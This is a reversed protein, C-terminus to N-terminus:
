PETPVRFLMSQVLGKATYPQATMNHALKCLTVLILTQPRYPLRASGRCAIQALRCCLMGLATCLPYQPLLLHLALNCTANCVNIVHQLGNVREQCSQPVQRQKIIPWTLIGFIEEYSASDCCLDLLHLFPNSDKCTLLKGPALRQSEKVHFHSHLINNKTEKLASIFASFSGQHGEHGAAPM